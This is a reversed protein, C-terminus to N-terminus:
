KEFARRHNPFFDSMSLIESAPFIKIEEGEDGISKFPESPNVEAMFLVLVHSEKDEKSVIVLDEKKLTIGIEEKVERLAAEEATEGRHGRGGPAKWFVPTPKKPDRILPIGAPTILLVAVAYARESSSMDFADM